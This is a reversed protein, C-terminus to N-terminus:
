SHSLVCLNLILSASKAALTNILLSIFFGIKIGFSILAITIVLGIIAAILSECIIRKDSDAFQPLFDQTIFGPCTGLFFGIIAGLLPPLWFFASSAASGMLMLGVILFNESM